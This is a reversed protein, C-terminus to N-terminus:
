SAPTLLGVIEIYLGAPDTYECSILRDAHKAALPKSRAEWVWEDAPDTSTVRLWFPVLIATSDEVHFPVIAPTTFESPPLLVTLSGVDGCDLTRERWGSSDALATPAAVAMLVTALLVTRLVRTM